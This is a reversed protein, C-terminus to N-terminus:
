NLKSLRPIFDFSHCRGEKSEIKMRGVEKSNGEGGKTAKGKVIDVWSVKKTRASPRDATSMYDKLIGEPRVSAEGKFGTSGM